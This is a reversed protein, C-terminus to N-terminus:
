DDVASITETHLFRVQRSDVFAATSNSGSCSKSDGGLPSFSNGSTAVLNAM